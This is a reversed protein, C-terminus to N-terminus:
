KKADKIKEKETPINYVENYDDTLNGPQGLIQHLSIRSGLAMIKSHQIAYAEDINSINKTM